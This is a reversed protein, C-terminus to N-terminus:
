SIERSAEPKPREPTMLPRLGVRRKSAAPRDGTPANAPVGGDAPPGHSAAPGVGKSPLAARAPAGAAPVPLPRLKYKKEPIPLPLLGRRRGDMGPTLALRGRSLRRAIATRGEGMHRGPRKVPGVIVKGSLEAERRLRAYSKHEIDGVFGARRLAANMAGTWWVRIAEVCKGGTAFADLQRTKKGLSKGGVVERATLLLHTHWNFSSGGKPPPHIGWVVAVKLTRVLYEAFDRVLSLRKSKSLEHPLAAIIIRGEVADKRRESRTASFILKGITDDWGSMGTAEIPGANRYDHIRGTRPSMTVDRVIYAVQRAFTNQRRRRASKISISLHRSM